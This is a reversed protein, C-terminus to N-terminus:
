GVAVQGILEEGLTHLRRQFQQVVESTLPCFGRRGRRRGAELRHRAEADASTESRGVVGRMRHGFAVVRALHGRTHVGPEADTRQSRGASARRCGKSVVTAIALSKTSCHLLRGLTCPTTTAAGAKRRSSATTCRGSAGRSTTACSLLPRAPEPRAVANGGCAGRLHPNASPSGCPRTVTLKSGIPTAPKWKSYAGAGSRKSPLTFMWVRKFCQRLLRRGRAPCRRRAAVDHCCGCRKSDDLTDLIDSESM